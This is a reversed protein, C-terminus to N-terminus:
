RTGTVRAVFADLTRTPLVAAMRMQIRADLGVVYRTRPRSSTLAHAIAEAVEVPEVGRAATKSAAKMMAELRTGYLARAEPDLTELAERGSETGKQWIATKVSGPQIIAVDIGQPRLEQRLSDSLGELAFKSANYPSLFPLARRGGISSLMVIRGKSERLLPLTAQTMAVAGILNIELQRRLDDLALREIPGQFTVGANNVLGVLGSSRARDAAAWVQDPLTVDLIVPSIREPSLARVAAADADGRVGALVDFGCTALHLATARGIGSSTGTVLVTGRSMPRSM